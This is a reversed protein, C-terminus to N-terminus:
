PAHETSTETAYRAMLAAMESAKPRGAAVLDSLDRFYQLYLDPTFATLLVAEEDGPNAFTHPAGVPVMVLTGPEADHDQDGVTFRVTGSVVYFAEEHLGHRHQPPGTTHPALRGEALGLRHETTSGNELIRMQLAPGLSIIEGQGPGVVSVQGM